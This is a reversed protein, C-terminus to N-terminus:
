RGKWHSQSKIDGTSSSKEPSARNRIYLCLKNQIYCRMSILLPDHQVHQLGYRIAHMVKRNKIAYILFQLSLQAQIKKHYRNDIYRHMVELVRRRQEIHNSSTNNKHINRIFVVDDVYNFQTNRKILQRCARINFVWDDAILEEDFPVFSKLFSSRALISQIFLSPIGTTLEDLLNKPAGSKLAKKIGFPTVRSGLKGDYCNIGDAYSVDISPNPIMVDIQTEFRKVCFKDDASLFSIFDGSAKGVLFNFNKAIHTIGQHPNLFVNIKNPFKNKFNMLLNDSGDTSGDDVVLVEIACDSSEQNLASNIADIIFEAHNYSLILVSIKIKNIAM